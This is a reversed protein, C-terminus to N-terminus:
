IDLALQGRPAHAGLPFVDSLVHVGRAANALDSNGPGSGDGLWVAVDTIARRTAETAGAWTGGTELDAAVVLTTDSLAYIIKNRGMANGVSFGADPRYPSCLCARGDTLAARTSPERLRRTLSDALIGVATGGADLAAAMALQDVGKAGGSIVSSGAAVAARAADEAVKAAAPTVQRSGVIGLGGRELLEPPGAVYLLPPATPGLRDVLRTPYAPDTPALVTVGTNELRELEFALATAPQLLISVRDVLDPPVVAEILEGADRGLLVSLDEVANFVLWYESAKLPEVPADVLRQALLVAALSADSRRDSM